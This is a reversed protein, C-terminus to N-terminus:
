KFKLYVFQGEESSSLHACRKTELPLHQHKKRITKTLLARGSQRNWKGVVRNIFCINRASRYIPVYFTAKPPENMGPDFLQSQRRKFSQNEKEKRPDFGTIFFPFLNQSQFLYLVYSSLINWIIQITYHQIPSVLVLLGAFCDLYVIEIPLEM